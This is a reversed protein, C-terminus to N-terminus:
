CLRIHKSLGKLVVDYSHKEILEDSFKRFAEVEEKRGGYHEAYDADLCCEIAQENDTDEPMDYAIAAWTRCMVRRLQEAQEQTVPNKKAM